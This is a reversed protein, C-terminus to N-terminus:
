QDRRYQTEYRLNSLLLPRRMARLGAGSSGSAANARGHPFKAEHSPPFLSRRAVKWRARACAYQRSPSAVKALIPIDTRGEGKILVQHLRMDPEGLQPHGAVIVQNPELPQARGEHGLAGNLDADGATLRKRIRSRRSLLRTSGSGM